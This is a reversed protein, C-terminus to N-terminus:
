LEKQNITAIFDKGEENSVLVYFGCEQCNQLKKAVTGQIAGKCFSGAINWCFRGGYRGRNKGDHEGPMAASCIGLNENRGNPERGCKMMEWCNKEKM